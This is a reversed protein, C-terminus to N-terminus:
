PNMLGNDPRMFAGCFATQGGWSKERKQNEKRKEKKKRKKKAKEKPLHFRLRYQSGM